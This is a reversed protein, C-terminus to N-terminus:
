WKMYLKKYNDLNIEIIQMYLFILRLKDLTVALDKTLTVLLM